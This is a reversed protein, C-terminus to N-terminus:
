IALRRLFIGGNNPIPDSNHNALLFRYGEWRMVQLWVEQSVDWADEESGVIRRIYYFLPREWITVLEEFAGNDGRRYRLM